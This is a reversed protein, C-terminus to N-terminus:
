HVSNSRLVHSDDLEVILNEASNYSTPYNRDDTELLDSMPVKPTEIVRIGETIMKRRSKREYMAKDAAIIMEDFTSGNGTYAAAGPSVGVNATRGDEMMLKFSRVASEIRECLDSVEATNADSILAVFEDGGYRALFDYERLQGLIVQGIEHLMRDGAKHGFNDNVGKFGDLDLMLVQFSGGGRESRAVERDFQMKLSRANPLGTMTDTLAHATAEDHNKSRAIADAAIKSVTELLRIHEDEFYSLEKSYVSVAGILEDGAILPVVAMSLYEDGFEINSFSFDLDPNVNKVLERKLLAFGTAGEGVRIRRLSIKDANEGVVHVADAFKSSDDLLYVSCTTFPIFAKIKGTFLNLTEDIKTAGAFERSLEFLTFVEKNAQKIQDIYRLKAPAAPVSNDLNPYPVGAAEIEQEFATLHKLFAHVLKEDFRSGAGALLEKRAEERTLAARYPRSCRMTDYADAIGLIRATLPIEDGKLGSPYGTGDWNEHHSRVTDAVPCGFNITDLISAGVTSHIKTKDFEADTLRGTKSLIHDPIALKGIDHLLAATKLADLDTENLRLAKGLGVSYIQTRRVHGSGIQDRADIATALAEVTSIHVRNAHEMQEAKIMLRRVHVRYAVISLVLMAAFVPAIYGGFYAVCAAMCVVFATAASALKTGKSYNSLKLYKM